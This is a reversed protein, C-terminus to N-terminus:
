HQALYKHLVGYVNWLDNNVLYVVFSFENIVPLHFKLEIVVSTVLKEKVIVVIILKEKESGSLNDSEFVSLFVCILFICYVCEPIEQKIRWVKTNEVCRLVFTNDRRDFIDKEYVESWIKFHIYILSFVDRLDKINQCVIGVEVNKRVFLIFDDSIVQQHYFDIIWLFLGNIEDVPLVLGIDSLYIQIEQSIFIVLILHLIVQHYAVLSFTAIGEVNEHKIDFRFKHSEPMFTELQIFWRDFAEEQRGSIKKDQTFITNIDDIKSAFTSSSNSILKACSPHKM